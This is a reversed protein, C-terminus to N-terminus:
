LDTLHNILPELYTECIASVYFEHRLNHSGVVNHAIAHALM